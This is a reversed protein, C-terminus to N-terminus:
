VAKGIDTLLVTDGDKLHYSELTHNRDLTKGNFSFTYTGEKSYGLDIAAKTADEGVRSDAAFTFRPPKEGPPLKSYDVLLTISRAHADPSATM